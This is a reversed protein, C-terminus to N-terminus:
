PGGPCRGSDSSTARRSVAVLVAPRCGRNHLARLPLGDLWLVDGCSLRHHAGTSRELEIEGQEVVVLADKWEAADYARSCGPAVAVARMEFAAGLRGGLFSLPGSGDDGPAEPTM